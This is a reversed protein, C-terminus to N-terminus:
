SIGVRAAGDLWDLLSGGFTPVSRVPSRAFFSSKKLRIDIHVCSYVFLIIVASCLLLFDLHHFFPRAAVLILETAHTHARAWFHDHTQNAQPKVSLSLSPFLAKMSNHTTLCSSKWVHEVSSCFPAACSWVRATKCPFPENTKHTHTHTEFYKTVFYRRSALFSGVFCDKHKTAHLM